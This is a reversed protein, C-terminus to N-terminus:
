VHSSDLCDMSVADYVDCLRILPVHASRRAHAGGMREVLVSEV